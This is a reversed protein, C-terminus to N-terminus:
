SSFQRALEETYRSAGLKEAALRVAAEVPVQVHDIPIVVGAKVLDVFSDEDGHYGINENKKEKQASRISLLTEEGNRGLGEAMRQLPTELARALISNALQEEASVATLERLHTAANVLALHEGPVVGDRIASYYLRLMWELQQTRLQREQETRGGSRVVAVGATLKALREGFKEKDYESWTQEIATRIEEMRSNLKQPSGHGHIITTEHEDIIVKDATGLENIGINALDRPDDHSIFTGGTLVAIDKLIEIRRDGFGPARVVVSTQDVDAVLDALADEEIEEVIILANREPSKLVVFSYIESASRVRKDTILILPAKLVVRRNEQDTIFESAVYGRDFKLGTVVEIEAVRGPVVAIPGGLGVKSISESILDAIEKNACLLQLFKSVHEDDLPKMTALIKTTVRELAQLLNRALRKPHAKQAIAQLGELLIPTAIQIAMEAMGPELLTEDLQQKIEGILTNVQPIDQPSRIEKRAPSEPAASSRELTSPKTDASASFANEIFTALQDLVEEQRGWTMNVLPETPENISEFDALATKTFRSPSLILPVIIAGDKEAANLLPPVEGTAIFDSALFNASVLLVAVKTSDIAKVIEEKWKKGPEIKSDDWIDIEMERQLPKLHVRLRELWTKDHRSYSVFVKTRRSKRAPM